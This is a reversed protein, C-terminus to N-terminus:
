GGADDGDLLELHAHRLVIKKPGCDEFHIEAKTQPWPLSVKVVQGIGYLPHSVRAGRRLYEYEPPPAEPAGMEAGGGDLSPPAAEGVPWAGTSARAARRRPWPRASVVDQACDEVTVFADGIETLFISAEQPTTRGRLMRKRACTLTLDTKARTMGVFALRREEEPDTEGGGNRSPQQARAGSSVGTSDRDRRIPLISCM